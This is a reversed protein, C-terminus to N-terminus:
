CTMSVRCTPTPPLRRSASPPPSRWPWAVRLVLLSRWGAMRRPMSARTRGATLAAASHSPRVSPIPTARLGSHAPCRRFRGAVRAAIRLRVRGGRGRAMKPVRTLMEYGLMAGNVGLAGLGIVERATPHRHLGEIAALSAAPILGPRPTPSREGPARQRQRAGRRGDGDDKIVNRAQIPADVGAAAM